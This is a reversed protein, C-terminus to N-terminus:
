SQLRAQAQRILEPLLSAAIPRNGHGPFIWEPRAAQLRRLSDPLVTWDQALYQQAHPGRTSSLLDGVFASRDEFVFCCSGATHGPTHVVQAAVGLHRLLTGHELVLDPVCHMPPVLRSFLPTLLAMLKGFGRGRGLISLGKSLPEADAQHVAVPAGTEAQIRAAAGYHDIHAHTILIVQLPRNKSAIAQLIRAGDLSLGADILALGVELEVLYANSMFLRLTDIKM